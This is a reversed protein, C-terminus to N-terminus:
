TRTRAASQMRLAFHVHVNANAYKMNNIYFARGPAAIQLREIYVRQRSTGIECIAEFAPPSIPM